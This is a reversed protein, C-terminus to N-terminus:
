LWQSHAKKINDLEQQNNANEDQIKKEKSIKKRIDNWTVNALDDRFRVGSSIFTIKFNDGEKVIPESVPESQNKNTFFSKLKKIFSIKEEPKDQQKNQPSEIGTCSLSLYDNRDGCCKRHSFKAKVDCIQCLKQFSENELFDRVSRADEIYTDPHFNDSYTVEKLASFIPKYSNINTTNIKM